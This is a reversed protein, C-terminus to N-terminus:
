AQRRGFLRPALLIQKSRCEACRKVYAEKRTWCHFFASNREAPPLSMLQRAEEPCLYGNSVQEIDQMARIQEIDVGLDCSRTMAYLGMIASNSCNFQISPVVLSPKSKSGYSFRINAPPISTYQGLSTEESPHRCGTHCVECSCAQTWCM